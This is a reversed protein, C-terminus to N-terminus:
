PATEWLFRSCPFPFPSCSDTLIGALLIDNRACRPIWNGLRFFFPARIRFSPRRSRDGKGRRGSEKRGVVEGIKVKEIAIKQEGTGGNGTRGSKSESRLRREPDRSAGM